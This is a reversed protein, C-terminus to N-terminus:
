MGARKNLTRAKLRNRIPADFAYEALTAAGLIAGIVILWVLMNGTDHFAYVSVMLLPWHIAYLPYSIDGLWTGLKTFVQTSPRSNAGLLVLMPFGIFLPFVTRIKGAFQPAFLFAICFIFLLEGNIAPIPLRDSQVIRFLLVGVGYGWGVRVFGAVFDSSHAGIGAGGFYVSSGIFLAGSVGCAIVLRFATLRFFRWHCANAFLEFFLSWFVPNIPFTQFANLNPLIVIHLMWGLTTAQNSASPLTFAVLASLSISLAIAPYIRGLRQIAFKHLTMRHFRGEYARAMVFGSIIFFLDVAIAGHEALQPFKTSLGVHDLLVCLAAIGRLGDLVRLRGATVAPTSQVICENESVM